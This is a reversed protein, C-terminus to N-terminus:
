QIGGDAELVPRIRRIDRPLGDGGIVVDVDVLGSTDPELLAVGFMELNARPMRLRVLQLPEAEFMPDAALRLLPTAAGTRTRATRRPTAATPAPRHREFRGPTDSPPHSRRNPEVTPTNVAVARAATTRDPQKRQRLVTLGTALVLTAAALAAAAAWASRYRRPPPPAAASAENWAAMVADRVRSPAEIRADSEAFERWAVDFDSDAM